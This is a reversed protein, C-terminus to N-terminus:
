DPLTNLDLTFWYNEPYTDQAALKRRDHTAYIGFDTQKKQSYLYLMDIFEKEAYDENAVGTDRAYWAYEGSRFDRNEFVLVWKDVWLSVFFEFSNQPLNGFNSTHYGYKGILALALNYLKLDTVDDGETRSWNSLWGKEFEKLLGTKYDIKPLHHIDAADGTVDKGYEKM